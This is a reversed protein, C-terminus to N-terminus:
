NKKADNIKKELDDIAKEVRSIRLMKADYDAQSLKGSKLDIEMQAKENQLRKRAEIVRNDAQVVAEQLDKEPNNREINKASQDKEKNNKSEKSVPKVPRDFEELRRKVNEESGELRKLQKTYETNTIKGNKLDSELKERQRQINDLSAQLSRKTGNRMKEEREKRKREEREQIRKDKADKQTIIEADKPDYEIEVEKDPDKLADINAPDSEFANIKREAKNIKEMRQEFQAETIMGARFENEARDKEEKVKQKAWPLNEKTLEFKELDIPTTRRQNKPDDKGVIVKKDKTGIEVGQSYSVSIM